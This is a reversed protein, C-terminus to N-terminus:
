FLSPIPFFVESERSSDEKLTGALTENQTPRGVCVTYLRFLDLQM